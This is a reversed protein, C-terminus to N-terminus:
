TKNFYKLRKWNLKKQLNMLLKDKLQILSKKLDKKLRLM